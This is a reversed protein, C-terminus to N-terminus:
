LFQSDKGRQRYSAVPEGSWGGIRFPPSFFALSPLMFLIAPLKQIPSGHLLPSISFVFAGAAFVAFTVITYSVAISDQYESAFPLSFVVLLSMLGSALLRDKETIHFKRMM